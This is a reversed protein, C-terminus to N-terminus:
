VLKGIALRADEPTQGFLSPMDAGAVAAFSENAANRALEGLDTRGGRQEAHRDVAESFASVTEMLSPRNGVRLGLSRLSEPSRAALPIQTLLWFSKFLAPDNRAHEFSSEAAEASAGAIAGLAAGESILSVVQQWRRTAPLRGLRIHGMQTLSGIPQALGKRIAIVGAITTTSVAGLGVLLIGLKGEAPAIESAQKVKSNYNLRREIISGIINKSRISM